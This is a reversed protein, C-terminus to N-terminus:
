TATICQAAFILTSIGNLPPSHLFAMRLTDGISEGFGSVTVEMVYSDLESITNALLFKRVSLRITLNKRLRM